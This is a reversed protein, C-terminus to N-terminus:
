AIRDDVQDLRLADGQDVVRILGVRVGEVRQDVQQDLLIGKGCVFLDVPLGLAGLELVAELNGVVGPVAAIILPCQAVETPRNGVAVYAARENALIELLCNGAAKANGNTFGVIARYNDVEDTLATRSRRCADGQARLDGGDVTYRNGIGDVVGDGVRRREACVVEFAQLLHAVCDAERDFGINLQGPDVGIALFFCLRHLDDAFIVAEAKGGKGLARGTEFQRNNVAQQFRIVVAVMVIAIDFNVAEGIVAQQRNLQPFPQDAGQITVGDAAQDDVHALIAAAAAEQGILHGGVEELFWVHQPTGTKVLIFVVVKIEVRVSPVAVIQGGFVQAVITFHGDNNAGEAEAGTLEEGVIHRDVITGRDDAVIGGTPQAAADFADLHGVFLVECEGNSAGDVGITLDVDLALAHRGRQLHRNYGFVQQGVLVFIHQQIRRDRMQIFQQRNLRDVAAFDCDAIGDGPRESRAGDHM